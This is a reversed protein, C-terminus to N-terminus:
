ALVASLVPNCSSFSIILMVGERTIIVVITLWYVLRSCKRLHINFQYLVVPNVLNKANATGFPDIEPSTKLIVHSRALLSSSFSFLCSSSPLYCSAVITQRSFLRPLAPGVAVWVKEVFFLLMCAAQGCVCERNGVWMGESVGPLSRWEASHM